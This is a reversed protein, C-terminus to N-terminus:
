VRNRMQTADKTLTTHSAGCTRCWYIIRDPVRVGDDEYGKFFECKYGVASGCKPCETNRGDFPPLIRNRLVRRGFPWIM